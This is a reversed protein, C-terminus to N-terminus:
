QDAKEKSIRQKSNQAISDYEDKNLVQFALDDLKSKISAMGLRHALPSYLIKNRMVIRETENKTHTITKMNHM